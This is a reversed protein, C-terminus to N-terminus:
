DLRVRVVRVPDRAVRRCRCRLAWSGLEAFSLIVGVYWFGWPQVIVSVGTERDDRDPEVDTAGVSDPPGAAAVEVAPCEVVPVGTYRSVLLTALSSAIATTSLGAAASSM